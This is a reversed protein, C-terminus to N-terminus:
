NVVGSITFSCVKLNVSRSINQARWTRTGDSSPPISTASWVGWFQEVRRRCEFRMLTNSILNILPVSHSANSIECSRDDVVSVTRVCFGGQM